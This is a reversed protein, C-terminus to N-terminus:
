KSSVNETESPEVWRVEIERLKTNKVLERRYQLLRILDSVSLHKEKDLGERLLNNVLTKDSGIPTKKGENKVGSEPGGSGCVSKEAGSKGSRTKSSRRSAKKNAPM